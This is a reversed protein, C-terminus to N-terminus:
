FQKETEIKEYNNNKRFIWYSKKEKEIRLDLFDKGSIRAIIGVPTVIIYFLISLIVRTMVFGMVVAFSMWVKQLPKLVVPLAMGLIILCGGALIFYVSSNKGNYMLLFGLLLVVTGVSIGFKRCEKKSSNIHSIEKFLEKM